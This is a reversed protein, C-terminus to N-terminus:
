ADADDNEAYWPTPNIRRRAAAREDVDLTSEGRLAPRPAGLNMRGSTARLAFGRFATFRQEHLYDLPSKGGPSVPTRLWASLDTIGALKESVARVHVLVELLHGYRADRPTAGKMWKYYATRSVGFLDALLQPPLRTLVRLEEAPTTTCSVARTRNHLTVSRMPNRATHRSMSLALNASGTSSPLTLESLAESLRVYPPKPYGPECLVLHESVTATFSSGLIAGALLFRRLSDTDQKVTTRLEVMSAAGAALEPDTSLVPGTRDVLLPVSVDAFGTKTVTDHIM